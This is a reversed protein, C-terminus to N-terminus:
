EMAEMGAATIAWIKGTKWTEAIMAVHGLKVMSNLHRSVTPRTMDLRLGIDRTSAQRAQSLLALIEPARPMYVDVDADADRRAQSEKSWKEALRRAAPGQFHAVGVGALHVTVIM